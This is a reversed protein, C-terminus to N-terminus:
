LRNIKFDQWFDDDLEQTCKINIVSLLANLLVNCGCKFMQECIDTFDDDWNPMFSEQFIIDGKDVQGIVKHVTAGIENVDDNKAALVTKMGILGSYSPLLSYHLNLFKFPLSITNVGLIKHINTIVVDGKISQLFNDFETSHNRDYNIKKNFIGAKEAVNLAECCRDAIVATITIPLQLKKIAFDLFRLNGGGGSVLFIINM